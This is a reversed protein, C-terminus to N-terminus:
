CPGIQSDGTSRTIQLSLCAAWRSYSPASADAPAASGVLVLRRPVPLWDCARSRPPPPQRHARWVTRTAGQGGGAPAEGADRVREGAPRAADVVRLELGLGVADEDVGGGGPRVQVVQLEERLGGVLGPPRLLGVGVVVGAAAPEAVPVEQEVRGEVAGPVDCPVQGGLAGGGDGGDDLGEALAAARLVEPRGSLPVV